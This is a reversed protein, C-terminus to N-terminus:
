RYSLADGNLALPKVHKLLYKKRHRCYGYIESRSNLTSLNPNLINVAESICLLCQLTIPNFSRTKEIIQWTVSHNVNQDKLNWIHTSLTTQIKPDRVRFSRSHANFRDKFDTAQGVYKEAEENIPLNNDDLPTVTAGYVVHSHVCNGGLPCTNPGNRCNCNLAPAAQPPPPPPPDTVM